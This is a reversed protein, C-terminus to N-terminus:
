CGLILYHSLQPIIHCEVIAEQKAIRIPLSVKGKSRIIQGNISLECIVVQLNMLSQLKNFWYENIFNISAGTDILARVISGNVM